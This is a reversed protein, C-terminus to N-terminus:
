AGGWLAFANHKSARRVDTQRRDTQRDTQRDTAYIPGLDLVSLGLFVLIPVYTARMMRSESLVKLTLLDFTLKFPAPAYQPPRKCLKSHVIRYVTCSRRHSCITLRVFLSKSLKVTNCTTLDHEVKQLGISRCRATGRVLPLDLPPPPGPRGWVAGHLKQQRNKTYLFTTYVSQKPPPQKSTQQM